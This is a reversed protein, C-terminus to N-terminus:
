ASVEHAELFKRLSAIRPGVTADLALALLEWAATGLDVARAPDGGPWLELRVVIM